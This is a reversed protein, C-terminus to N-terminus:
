VADGIDVADTDRFIQDLNGDLKRDSGNGGKDGSKGNDYEGGMLFLM